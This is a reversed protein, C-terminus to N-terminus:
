SNSSESTTLKIDENSHSNNVMAERDKEINEIPPPSEENDCIFNSKPVEAEVTEVEMAERGDEPESVGIFAEEINNSSLLSLTEQKFPLLPIVFVSIDDITAPGGANRRWNREKLKGRAAM